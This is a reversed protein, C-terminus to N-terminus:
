LLKRFVMEKKAENLTNWFIFILGLFALPLFTSAGIKQKVISIISTIVMVLILGLFVGFIIKRNKFEKILQEDTLTKLDKKM